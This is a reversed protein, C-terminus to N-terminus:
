KKPPKVGLKKLKRYLTSPNINLEEATKKRNWNNKKLASILFVTELERMNSAIEIAPLSESLDIKEPLLDPTILSGIGLAFAREVFNELERVNGPFDYQLLYKLARPSIGEVKKDYIKNFKDIFHDVLLPIDEKRERLPPAKIKVVNIRYYFDDRFKKEAVLTELDKNTAAVVRVDAIETKDSGLPEFKREQLVRLLKVQVSHSVEGIEDLFLTGGKALAFRGKKDKKADTFAGAVYGFLESELLTDPLAACNVAILAKNKRKSRSHIARAILEKGVGSEGEILINSDTKSALEILEFMKRMASSKGVIDEYSYRRTLEKRLAEEKSLDRFTEAGGVIKGSDDYIASSSVSLPKRKGRVVACIPRNIVVDKKTFVEKLPCQTECAENHLVEYCKRGLVDSEKLDLIELAAKNAFDIEFDLDVTFVGDSISNIIALAKNGTLNM